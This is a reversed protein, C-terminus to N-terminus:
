NGAPVTVVVSDPDHTLGDFVHEAPRNGGVPDYEFHTRQDGVTGSVDPRNRYPQPAQTPNRATPQPPPRMRGVADGGATTQVQNVRIDGADAARLQNVTDTAIDNRVPNSGVGATGRPNRFGRLQRFPDLTRPTRGMLMPAGGPGIHMQTGYPLVQSFRNGGSRVTVRTAIGLRNGNRVLVPLQTVRAGTATRTTILLTRGGAARAAVRAARGGVQVARGAVRGLGGGVVGLVALALDWGTEEGAAFLVLHGLLAAIGVVLAAVALVQGVIPVWSLALALVGLVGAVADLIRTIQAIPTNEVVWRAGRQIAGWLGGENKLDDDSADRIADATSGASNNFGDVASRVRSVATELDSQAASLTARYNEGAWPEPDQDPQDPHAENYTDAATQAQQEHDEMLQIGGEAREIEAQAAEAQGIWYEADSRASALAPHFGDLASAVKEYRTAVLDLKGPLDEVVQRFGPAAPTDWVEPSGLGDFRTIQTRINAAVSALHAACAEVRAADGDIPHSDYGALDWRM